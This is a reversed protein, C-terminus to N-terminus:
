ESEAYKSKKKLLGGALWSGAILGVIVWVGRVQDSNLTRFHIKSIGTSTSIEEFMDDRLPLRGKSPKLASLDKPLTLDDAIDHYLSRLNSAKSVSAPQHEGAVHERVDAFIHTSDARADDGAVVIVKPIQPEEPLARAAEAKARSSEWFDPTFPQLSLNSVDNKLM